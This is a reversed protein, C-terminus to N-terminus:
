FRCTSGFGKTGTCPIFLDVGAVYHMDSRNSNFPANASINGRTCTKFSVVSYKFTLLLMGVGVGVRM